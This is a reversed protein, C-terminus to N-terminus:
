IIAVAALAIASYGRSTVNNSPFKDCFVSHTLSLSFGLSFFRSSLFLSFYPWFSSPSLAPSRALEIGFSRTVAPFLAGCTSNREDSKGTRHTHKGTNAQNSGLKMSLPTQDWTIATPPTRDSSLTEHVDRVFFEELVLTPNLWKSRSEYIHYIYNSYM